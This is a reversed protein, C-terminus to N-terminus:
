RRDRPAEKSAIHCRVIGGCLNVDMRRVGDAVGRCGDAGGDHLKIHHGFNEALALRARRLGNAAAHDDILFPVNERIEVDGAPGLADDDREGILLM